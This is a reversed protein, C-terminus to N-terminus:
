CRRCGNTRCFLIWCSLGDPIGGRDEEAAVVPRVDLRFAAAFLQFQDDIQDELQRAKQRLQRIEADLAEM